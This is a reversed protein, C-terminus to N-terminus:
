IEQNKIISNPPHCNQYNSIKCCCEHPGAYIKITSEVVSFHIFCISHVKPRIKFVFLYVIIMYIFLHYWEFWEHVAYLHIKDGFYLM